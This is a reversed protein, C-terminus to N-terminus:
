TRYVLSVNALSGEDVGVANDRIELWVFSSRKEM